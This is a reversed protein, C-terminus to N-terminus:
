DKVERIFKGSVDFIVDTGKVEAEYNVEGNAKTIKAAEKITAGNYHDKIYQLVASPLESVKLEMESEKLNGQADVVASMKKGGHDFSAEFESGEKEWKVHTSGPFAKSLAAKAAAPPTANKSAKGEKEETQALSVSSIGLALITMLVYQKM